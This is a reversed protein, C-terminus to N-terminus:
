KMLEDVSPLFKAGVVGLPTPCTKPVPPLNRTYFSKNLATQMTFYEHDSDFQGVSQYDQAVTLIINFMLWDCLFEMQNVTCQSSFFILIVVTLSFFCLLFPFKHVEVRVHACCRKCMLSYLFIVLRIELVAEMNFPERQRLTLSNVPSLCESVLDVM